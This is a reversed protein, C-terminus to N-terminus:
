EATDFHLEADDVRRLDDKAMRHQLDLEGVLAAWEPPRVPADPRFEPRAYEPLAFLMAPAGRSIASACSEPSPDVYFLLDYGRLRVKRLVDLKPGDFLAPEESPPLHTRLWPRVAEEDEDSHLVVEGLSRLARYLSLGQRIPASSAVSDTRGVNALVGEVVIISAPIM